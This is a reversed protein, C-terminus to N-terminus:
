YKYAWIGGNVIKFDSIECLETFKRQQEFM